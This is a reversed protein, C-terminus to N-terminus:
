NNKIINYAYIDHGNREGFAMINDGVSLMNVFTPPTHVYIVATERLSKIVIIDDNIAIIKGVAAISLRPPRISRDMSTIGPVGHEGIRAFRDEPDLMNVAVGIGLIISIVIIGTYIHRYRYLTTNDRLVRYCLVGVGIGCIIFIWFLINQLLMTMDIGIRAFMSYEHIILFLFSAWFISIFFLVIGLIIIGVTHLAFYWAPKPTVKETTIKHLINEKLNNNM